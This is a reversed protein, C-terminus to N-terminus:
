SLAVHRGDLLNRCRGVLLEHRGVTGHLVECGIPRAHVTGGAVCVRRVLAQELHVARHDVAASEVLLCCCQGFLTPKRDVRGGAALLGALDGCGQAQTLLVPHERRVTVRHSERRSADVLHLQEAHEGAVPVASVVGGGVLDSGLACRQCCLQQVRGTEGVGLGLLSSVGDGEREATVARGTFAVEV